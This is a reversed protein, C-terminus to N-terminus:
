SRRLARQCPPFHRALVRMTQHNRGVHRPPSRYLGRSRRRTMPRGKSVLAERWRLWTRNPARAVVQAPVAARRREARRQNWGPRRQWRSLSEGNWPTAGTGEVPRM